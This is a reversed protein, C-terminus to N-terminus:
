RAIYKKRNHIYITGKPQHGSKTRTGNVSYTPADESETVVENISNETVELVLPNDNDLPFDSIRATPSDISTATLENGDNRLRAASQQGSINEQTADAVYCKGAIMKSGKVTLVKNGKSTKITITLKKGSLDLPALMIYAVLTDGNALSIGNLRLSQSKENKSPTLTGDVANITADQTFVAKDSALTILEATLSEYVPCSIRLICGHHSLDFNLADSTSQAAATMFDFAALHATNGNGSQEQGSYTIPLSNTKANSFEPQYPFAAYFNANPTLAWGNLTLISTHGNDALSKQWLRLCTGMETFVSGVDKSDWTCVMGKDHQYSYNGAHTCLFSSCLIIIAYLFKM